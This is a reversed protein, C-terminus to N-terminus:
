PHVAPAPELQPPAVAQFCLAAMKEEEKLGLELQIANRLESLHKYGRVKKLRPEIDLLASAPWRRKQDSNRWRDVKDTNVTFNLSM